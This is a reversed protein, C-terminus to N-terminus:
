QLIRLNTVERSNVYPEVINICAVKENDLLTIIDEGFEYVVYNTLITGDIDVDLRCEYYGEGHFVIIEEGLATTGEFVDATEIIYTPIDADVRLRLDETCGWQSVAILAVAALTILRM